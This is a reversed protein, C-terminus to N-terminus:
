LVTCRIEVIQIDMDIDMDTDTDMGPETIMPTGRHTDINKERNLNM